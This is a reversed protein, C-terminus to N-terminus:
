ARRETPFAQARVLKINEEQVWPFNTALARIFDSKRFPAAYKLAAWKLNLRLHLYACKRITASIM